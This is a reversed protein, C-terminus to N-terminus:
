GCDIVHFICHVLQVVVVIIGALVQLQGTVPQFNMIVSHGVACAVVLAIIHPEIAGGALFSFRGLERIPPGM